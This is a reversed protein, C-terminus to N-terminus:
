LLIQQVTFDDASQIKGKSLMQMWILQGKKGQGRPRLIAWEWIGHEVIKKMTIWNGLCRQLLLHTTACFVPCESWLLHSIGNNQPFNSNSANGNKTRTHLNFNRLLSATLIRQSIWGFWYRM